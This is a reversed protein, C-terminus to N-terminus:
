EPLQSTCNPCRTANINIESQCFPCVKTRPAEVKVEKKANDKATKIAKILLFIIFAIVVFNIIAMIFNGYSLTVAGMEQAMALPTNPPVTVAAKNLQIYLNSFDVGGLALGIPPMLVDKILSNVLAGFATATIVGVALDFAHGKFLFDKFERLLSM